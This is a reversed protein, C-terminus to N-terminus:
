YDLQMGLRDKLQKVLPYAEIIKLYQQKTSLHEDAPEKINETAQLTIKYTLFRNNFYSQLHSILAGRESEIFKQQLNNDTVIEICNDDIITLRAAKFHTIASNNKNKILEEIYLGWSIYLDEEKLPIISNNKNDLAVKERIKELSTLRTFRSKTKVVTTHDAVAPSIKPKLIAEEIILM